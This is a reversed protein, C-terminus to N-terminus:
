LQDGANYIYAELSALDSIGGTRAFWVLSFVIVLFVSSTDSEFSM